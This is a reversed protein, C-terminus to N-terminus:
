EQGVSEKEDCKKGEVTQIGDQIQQLLQDIIFHSERDSQATNQKAEVLLRHSQELTEVLSTHTKQSHEVLQHRAQTYYGNHYREILQDLPSASEANSTPAQKNSSAQVWGIWFFLCSVIMVRYVIKM